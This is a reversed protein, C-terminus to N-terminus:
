SVLSGDCPRMVEFNVIFNELASIVHKANINTGYLVGNDDSTLSNTEQMHHPTHTGSHNHPSQHIGHPLNLYSRSQMPTRRPTEKSDKPNFRSSESM